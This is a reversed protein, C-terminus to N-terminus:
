RLWGMEQLDAVVEATFKKAGLSNLHDTNKYLELSLFREDGTYDIYEVNAYAETITKIDAYFKEYFESTFGEYFYSTTPVTVLLVKIDHEAAMSIMECLADYQLSVEQNGIRKMFVDARDQGVNVIDNIDLASEEVEETKEIDKIIYRVNAKESLIPFYDYVLANRFTWGPMNECDLVQYYRTVRSNIELLPDEEYLSRHSVDIVIVADEAFHDIYQKFIALDFVYSQSTMSMDAATYETFEDWEFGNLSHSNGFNAIQLEYPVEKFKSVGNLSQFYETRVFLANVFIIILCPIAGGIIVKLWFKKM